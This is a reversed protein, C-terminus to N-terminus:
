PGMESGSVVPCRASRYATAAGIERASEVAHVLHGASTTGAPAAELGALATSPASLSNPGRVGGSPVGLEIRAVAGSNPRPGAQLPSEGRHGDCPPRPL